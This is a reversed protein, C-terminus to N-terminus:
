DFVKEYAVRPDGNQLFIIGCYHMGHKELMRRMVINGEHTDIRLSKRGMRKAFDEAYALIATSIGKGRSSVAIAVRHIAIYARNDGTLWSGDYIKDYTPEGDDILAFTGCIVDNENQILYSYGKEIDANIVTSNPYGDQWQNIGLKAITGRAEEFIPMLAEIDSVKSKRIFM